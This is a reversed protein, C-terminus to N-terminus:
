TVAGDRAQLWAGIAASQPELSAPVIEVQADNSRTSRLTEHAQDRTRELFVGGAVGLPGGLIVIDPDVLLTAAGLVIGLAEAAHQVLARLPEIGEGALAVVQAATLAEARGGTVAHAAALADDDQSALGIALRVISQSSCLPNLHGIEGCSCRPGDEAIQWHGIQGGLGRHASPLLKGSWVLASRAERGLHVYFVGDRDRGAGLRAEALGAADVAQLVCTSARVATALREALEAATWSDQEEMVRKALTREWTALGVGAIEAGGAVHSVGRELQRFLEDLTPPSTFNARWRHQPTTTGGVLRMWAGLEGVELGLYVRSTPTTGISDPRQSDLQSDTPM